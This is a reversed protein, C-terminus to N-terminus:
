RLPRSASSRSCIGNSRNGRAWGVKKVLGREAGVDEEMWEVNSDEKGVVLRIGEKGM